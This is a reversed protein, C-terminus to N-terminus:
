PNKPELATRVSPPLDKMGKAFEALAWIQRDTYDGYASMGTRRIGHKIIWFSESESYPTGVLAFRPPPTFLPRTLPRSALGGHCGACGDLYLKGGAILDADTHSPPNQTRPARRRVSARVAFHMLASQWAPAHVDGRVDALGLRLYGALGAPVLVITILFGLIFKKM